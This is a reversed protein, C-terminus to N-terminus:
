QLLSLLLSPQDHQHARLAEARHWAATGLSFRCSPSLIQLRLWGAEGPRFGTHRSGGTLEPYHRLWWGPAARAVRPRPVTELPIRGAGEGDPAAESGGRSREHDRLRGWSPIQVAAPVARDRAAAGRATIQWNGEHKTPM